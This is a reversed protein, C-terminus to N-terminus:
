RAIAAVVPGTGTFARASNQRPRGCGFILFARPEPNNNTVNGLPADLM